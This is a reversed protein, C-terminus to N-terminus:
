SFVEIFCLIGLSLLYLYLPGISYNKTSKLFPHMAEKVISVM